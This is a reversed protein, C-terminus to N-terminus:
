ASASRLPVPVAATAQALLYFLIIFIHYLIHYNNYTSIYLLEGTCLFEITVTSSSNASENKLIALTLPWHFDANESSTKNLLGSTFCVALSFVSEM